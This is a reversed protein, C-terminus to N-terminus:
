SHDYKCSCAGNTRSESVTFGTRLGGGPARGVDRLLRRSRWRDHCDCEFMSTGPTAQKFNSTLKGQRPVDGVASDQGVAVVTADCVGTRLCALWDFRRSRRRQRTPIYRFVTDTWTPLPASSWGAFTERLRQAIMDEPVTGGYRIGADFGSDIVDIM